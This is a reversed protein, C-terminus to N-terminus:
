NINILNYFLLKLRFQMLFDITLHINTKIMYKIKFYNFIELIEM